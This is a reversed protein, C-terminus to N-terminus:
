HWPHPWLNLDCMVCNAWCGILDIYKRNTEHGHSWCIRMCIHGFSCKIIIFWMRKKKFKSLLWTLHEIADLTSFHEVLAELTYAVYVCPRSTKFQLQIWYWKVTHYLWTGSYRMGSYCSHWNLAISGQSGFWACMGEHGDGLPEACPCFTHFWRPRIPWLPLSMGKNGYLHFLVFTDWRSTIDICYIWSQDEILCVSWEDGTSQSHWWWALIAALRGSTSFLGPLLWTLMLCACSHCIITNSGLRKISIM